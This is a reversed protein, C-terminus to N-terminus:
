KTALKNKVTQIITEYGIQAIAWIGLSNWIIQGGASFSAGVSALPLIVIWVWSPLESKFLSKALVKTWQIIGSVVIAGGVWIAILEFDM